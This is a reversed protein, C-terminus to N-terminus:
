AAKDISKEERRKELSEILTEESQDLIAAALRIFSIDQSTLKTSRDESDPSHSTEPKM